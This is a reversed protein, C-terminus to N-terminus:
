PRRLYVLFGMIPQRQDERIPERRLAVVEFGHCSALARLYRESHAYRLSPLLEFDLIERSAAEASFCFIGGMKLAAHTAAFTPNLDGLYIFVDTAVVLDHPASAHQTQRRLYEVIDGQVLEDYIGLQSAQDLMQQSLDVGILRKTCPRILRGCLGTGCGLDLASEFASQAVSQLHQHLLVHSQYGLVNVLHHDFGKAYGDFLAQVYHRPATSPVPQAPGGGTVSALYYRVLENDAGNTIAQRFAQAAEQLQGGERLLSGLHVWATALTPDLAVARQYSTLAEGHRDLGQLAQARRSWFEGVGQNLELLQDFHTLAEQMRGLLGLATGRHLLADQNDPEQALIDATIDLADQPRDLALLTAALNVLTSVRGPVHALSSRFRQEAHMFAGAEFHALGALFDDKAQEFALPDHHMSHRSALRQQSPLAVNLPHRHAPIIVACRSGSRQLLPRLSLRLLPRLLM